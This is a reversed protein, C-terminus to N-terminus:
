AVFPTPPSFHLSSILHALFAHYTASFSPPFRRVFFPFFPLGSLTPLIFCGLSHSSASPSFGFFLLALTLLRTFTIPVPNISYPHLSQLIVRFPLLSFAVLTLFAFFFLLHILFAHTPPSCAHSDWRADVPLTWPPPGVLFLDCDLGAGAAASNPFFASDSIGCYLGCCVGVLRSRFPVVRSSFFCDM